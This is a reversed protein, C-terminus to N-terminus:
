DWEWEIGGMKVTDGKKIGAEELAKVVGTKKMHKYLQMRATWDEYDIRKAIREVSPFVITFLDDSIKIQPGRPKPTPKLITGTLTNTKKVSPKRSVTKLPAFKGGKLTDPSFLHTVVEDMIDSVGEGSVASVFHLNVKTDAFLEKIEEKLIRVEELDIKNIVVIQPKDLIKTNFFELEKNIKDFNERPNNETGDIIHILIKTREVHRLFEHGLGVGKHAGEILGPIDVLVFDKDRHEVVGLVPELTTFPYNAIKPTAATLFSILSSKGANPAGVLGVDGLLKLDLRVNIQNGEEGSQAIVPYQNTSSAYKVNGNGGKGGPLVQVKQNQEVMDVLLFDSEDYIQTGLPVKISIDKGNAGHKKAGAGNGGNEAKFFKKYRFALLTRENEDAIFYVSGGDGGDGGDPGGRPIFKEHRGSIAGEGGNGSKINISIQDIM